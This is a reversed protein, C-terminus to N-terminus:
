SSLSRVFDLFADPASVLKLGLGRGTFVPQAGTAEGVRAVRARIEWLEGGPRRVRVTVETGPAPDANTRVFIGAESMDVIVGSQRRGALEIECSLPRKERESQRRDTRQATSV